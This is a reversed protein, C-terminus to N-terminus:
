DESEVSDRTFDVDQDLYEELVEEIKEELANDDPLSFRDNIYLVGLGIVIVLAGIVWESM